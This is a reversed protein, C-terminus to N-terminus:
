NSPGALGLLMGELRRLAQPKLPDLPKLFDILFDYKIPTQDVRKLVYWKQVVEIRKSKYGSGYCGCQDRLILDNRLELSGGSDRVRYPEM